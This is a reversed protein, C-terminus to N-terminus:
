GRNIRKQAMQFRINYQFKKQAKKNTKWNYTASTIIIPEYGYEGQVFVDPSDFLETLWNADSEEIYPTTIEFNDEYTLYYDVKGRSNINYIPGGELVPADSGTQTGYFDQSQLHSKVYSQRDVKTSKLFPYAINYYDFVGLKNIFAFRTVEYDACGANTLYYTAYGGGGPRGFEFKLTDWSGTLINSLAPSYDSLNQPGVGVHRLLNPLPSGSATTNYNFSALTTGNNLISGSIYSFNYGFFSLTEYDGNYIPKPTDVGRYYPQNTLPQLIYPSYDWNYSGNDYDNVAPFLSFASMSVAPSGTTNYGTYLVVSSSTSTAWEEGVLVKFNLANAETFISGTVLWPQDSILYANVLPALDITGAGGNFSANNTIKYRNLRTASGSLYVDIVYKFQPEERNTSWLVLPLTNITANLISPTSLTFTTQAM